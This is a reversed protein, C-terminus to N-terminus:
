PNQSTQFKQAFETKIRLMKQQFNQTVKWGDYKVQSIKVDVNLSRLQVIFHLFDM